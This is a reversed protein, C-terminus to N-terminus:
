RGQEKKMVMAARKAPMGKPDLAIRQRASIARVQELPLDVAEVALVEAPDVCLTKENLGWPKLAWRGSQMRVDLVEGYLERGDRLVIGVSTGPAPKPLSM